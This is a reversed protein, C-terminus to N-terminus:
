TNLLHLEMVQKLHGALRKKFKVDDYPVYDCPKNLLKNCYKKSLLLQNLTGVLTAISLDINVKKFEGKQIGGKIIKKIVQINKFLYNVIAVQIDERQHLLLEQHILRHFKRQTFFREIYADIAGQIKEIYSLSNDKCIDDLLGHTTSFRDYLIQEFLKEKSGFYYNVMAVNVSAKDAIERITTGEFGKEAFLQLAAGVIVDRKNKMGTTLQCALILCDNLDFM